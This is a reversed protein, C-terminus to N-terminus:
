RKKIIIISGAPITETNTYFNLSTIGSNLGSTAGTVVTSGASSALNYRHASSAIVEAGILEINTISYQSLSTTIMPPFYNIPAVTSHWLYINDSRNNIRLNVRNLNAFLSVRIIVSIKNGEIFNFANGYKDTTLNIIASDVPVIYKLLYSDELVGLRRKIANIQGQLKAFAGLVTDEVAIAVDTLAPLGTLLTGRVWATFNTLINSISLTNTAAMDTAAEAQAMAADASSQATEAKGNASIGIAIAESLGTISSIPHVDAADRGTLENHISVGSKGFVVTANIPPAITVVASIKAGDFTATGVIQGQITVNGVM